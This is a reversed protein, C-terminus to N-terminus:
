KQAKFTTKSVRSEEQRFGQAANETAFLCYGDFVLSKQPEGVWMRSDFM